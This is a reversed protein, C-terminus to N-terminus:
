FSSSSSKPYLGIRAVPMDKISRYTALFNCLSLIPDMSTRSRCIGLKRKCQKIHVNSSITVSGPYVTVSGQYM